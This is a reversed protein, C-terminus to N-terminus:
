DVGLSMGDVIEFAEDGDFRTPDFRDIGDGGLIETAIRQGIAPARMFGHGQFGTAVFLGPDAEGLLPNRDPTATCLGAWARETRGWRRVREALVGEADAVFWDDGGRDFGDPDAEREVTGDGVLLGEPHPRWYVGATADYGMPVAPRGDAVLAQVRYPKVALPVGVGALLARTHAGAAVVVAGYPEGDVTWADQRDAADGSRGLEVAEGFATEAGAEVARETLLHAYSGPDTYAANEAVAAVAVGDTRLDPFRAALAPSDVVEVERGNARMGAVAEHIAEIRRDDREHAVLAYPHRTISFSGAGDLLRFREKSRAAIRADLDEAFADYCIGAARGTSGAAPGERDYCTVAIGERALDNAVTAGLAGAGVVAVRNPSM